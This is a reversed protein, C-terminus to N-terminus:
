SARTRGPPPDYPAFRWGGMAVPREGDYGVLFGGRPPLFDEATFPTGDPGGYIELYFRQVQETLAVADASDYRVPRLILDATM